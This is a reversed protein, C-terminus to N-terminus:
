PRVFQNHRKEDGVTTPTMHGPHIVADDPLSYVERRISAHLQEATGGPFDTRGISHGMIVDGGFLGGEFVILVSGPSHGPAHRIEFRTEGLPATDGHAWFDTPPPCPEVDFGWQSAMPVYQEILFLDDRHLFIPAGTLEVLDKVGFIHDLHAHTLWIADLTKGDDHHPRWIEVADWGPDVMAFRGSGEDLVLYTNEVFPGTEHRSISLM